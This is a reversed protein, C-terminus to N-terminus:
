SFGFASASASASASGSALGALRPAWAADAQFRSRATSSPLALVRQPGRYPARYPSGMFSHNRNFFDESIEKSPPKWKLWPHSELHSADLM